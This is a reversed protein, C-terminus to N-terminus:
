VARQLIPAARPHGRSPRRPSRWRVSTLVRRASSRTGARLERAGSLPRCRGFVWYSSCSTRSGGAVRTTTHRPFRPERASRPNKTSPGREPRRPRRDHMKRFKSQPISIVPESLDKMIGIMNEWLLVYFVWTFGALPLGSRLGLVYVLPLGLRLGLLYVNIGFALGM